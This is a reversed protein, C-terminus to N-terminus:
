LSIRLEIEQKQENYNEYFDHGARRAEIKAKELGYYATLENLNKIDGWAGNYNDFAVRGDAKAVVPYQWGKLQFAFGTEKTQFLRHDGYGIVTAGIRECASILADNDKLELRINMTHSM